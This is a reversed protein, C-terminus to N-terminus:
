RKRGRKENGKKKDDKLKKNPLVSKTEKPDKDSWFGDDPNDENKPQADYFKELKEGFVGFEKKYKEPVEQGRLAFIAEAQELSEVAKGCHRERATAIPDETGPEMLAILSALFTGTRGHSGVCFAMIKKGRTLKKAVVKLFDCWDEPVGGYDELGYNWITVPVRPLPPLNDTLAILLDYGVLDEEILYRTGGLFITFNGVKVPNGRHEPHDLGGEPSEVEVYEIDPFDDKKLENKKRKKGM